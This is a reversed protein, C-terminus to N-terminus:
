EQTNEEDPKRNRINDLYGQLIHVAAIQDVMNKKKATKTGLEHMTKKAAATTLREDWRVIKANSVAKLSEIFNETIQARPGYTGNMNRPVGIVIESADLAKAIDRVMEAAKTISGGHELTRVGGATWGFPDSVALGIRKDGYDVCLIRM